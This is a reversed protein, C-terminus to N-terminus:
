ESLMEKLLEDESPLMGRQLISRCADILLKWSIRWEDISVKHSNGHAVKSRTGYAKRVETFYTYRDPEGRHLQALFLAIRFSVEQNVKPFISEIATWIHLLSQGLDGIMPAAVLANQVIRLAPHKTSLTQWLAADMVAREFSANTLLRDGDHIIQLTLEFPWVEVKRDSSESTLGKRLEEPLRDRLLDSDRSNIGAYENLSCTSIYPYIFPALGNIYLMSKLVQANIQAEKLSSASVVFEMNCQRLFIAMLEYPMHLLHRVQLTALDFITVDWRRLVLGYSGKNVDTAGDDPILLLVPIYFAPM